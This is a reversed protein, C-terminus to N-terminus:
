KIQIIMYKQLIYNYKIKSLYRLIDYENYIEKIEIDNIKDDKLTKLAYEKKDKNNKVKYIKGYTGEDIYHLFIYENNDFKIIEKEEKNNNTTEM